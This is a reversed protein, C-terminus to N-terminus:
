LLFQRHNPRDEPLGFWRRLLLFDASMNEVMGSPADNGSGKQTDLRVANSCKILETPM